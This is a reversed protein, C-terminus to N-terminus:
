QACENKILLPFFLESTLLSFQKNCSLLGFASQFCASLSVRLCMRANAKLCMPYCVRSVCSPMAVSMCVCASICTRTCVRARQHACKSSFPLYDNLKWARTLTSNAQSNNFVVYCSKCHPSSLMDSFLCKDLCVFVCVCVSLHTCVGQDQLNLWVICLPMYLPMVQSHTCTHSLSTPSTRTYKGWKSFFCKLLFLDLGLDRGFCIFGSWSNHTHTHTKSLVRINPHTYQIKAKLM